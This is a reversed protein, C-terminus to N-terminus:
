VGVHVCVRVVNGCAVRESVGSDRALRECVLNDCMASEYVLNGCFARELEKVCVVKDCAVREWVVRECVCLRRVRFEECVVKVRVEKKCM